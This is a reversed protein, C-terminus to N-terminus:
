GFRVAAAGHVPQEVGPCVEGSVVPRNVFSNQNQITLNRQFQTLDTYPRSPSFRMRRRVDGSGGRLASLETEARRLIVTDQKGTWEQAGEQRHRREAQRRHYHRGGDSEQTKRKNRYLMTEPAAEDTQRM